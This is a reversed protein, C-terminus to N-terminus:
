YSNFKKWRYYEITVNNLNWGRGESIEKVAKLRPITQQEAMIGDLMDWVARCLGGTSPRKVGNREERETELKKMKPRPPFKGNKLKSEPQNLQTSVIDVLSGKIPEFKPLSAVLATRMGANDMKGYNKIGAAKCAARLEMKNMEEFTKMKNEGIQKNIILQM